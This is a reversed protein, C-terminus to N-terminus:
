AWTYVQKKNNQKIPAKGTFSSSSSSTSQKDLLSMADMIIIPLQVHQQTSPSTQEIVWHDIVGHHGTSGKVKWECGVWYSKM